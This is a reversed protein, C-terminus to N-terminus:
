IKALFLFHDISKPVLLLLHHECRRSDGKEDFVSCDSFLVHASFFVGCMQRLCFLLSSSSFSSPLPSVCYSKSEDSSQKLGDLERLVQSPVLVSTDPRRGAIDAIRCKADDLHEM